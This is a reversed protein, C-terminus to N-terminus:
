ISNGGLPINRAQEIQVPSTMLGGRILVPGQGNTISLQATLNTSAAATQQRLFLKVEQPPIQGPGREFGFFAFQMRAPPTGVPYIGEDLSIYVLASLGPVGSGIRQFTITLGDPPLGVTPVISISLDAGGSGDTDLNNAFIPNLFFLTRTSGVRTEVYFRFVNGALGAVLSGLGELVKQWWM